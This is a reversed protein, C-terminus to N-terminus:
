GLTDEGASRSACDPWQSVKYQPFILMRGTGQCVRQPCEFTFRSVGQRELVTDALFQTVDCGSEDVDHGDVTHLVRDLCPPIPETEPM